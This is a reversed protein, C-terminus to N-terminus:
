GAEDEAESAISMPIPKTPLITACQSPVEDVDVTCQWFEILLKRKTTIRCAQEFLYMYMTWVCSFVDPQKSGYTALRTKLLESQRLVNLFDRWAKESLAPWLQHAFQNRIKAFEKLVHGIDAHILGAATCLNVKKVFTMRDVELETPQLFAVELMSTLLSEIYAHGKIVSVFPDPDGVLKVFGEISQRVVGDTDGTIEPPFQSASQVNPAYFDIAMGDNCEIRCLFGAEDKVTDPIEFSGKGGGHQVVTEVLSALNEVVVKETEM